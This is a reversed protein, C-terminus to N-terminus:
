CILIGSVNLIKTYQSSSSYESYRSDRSYLKCLVELERYGQWKFVLPMNLVRDFTQLLVNQEFGQTLRAYKSDWWICFRLFIRFGTLCKHHLIKKLVKHLGLMNLVMAYYSGSSYKSDQWTLIDIIYRIKLLDQGIYM